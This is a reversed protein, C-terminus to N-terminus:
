RKKPVTLGGHGGACMVAPVFPAGRVRRPAGEKEGWLAGRFIKSADKRKQIDLSLIAPHLLAGRSLVPFLRFFLGMVPREAFRFPRNEGLCSAKEDGSFRFLVFDVFPYPAIGSGQRTNEL